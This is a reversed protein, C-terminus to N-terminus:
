KAELWNPGVGIDIDLPVELKIAGSMQKQVINKLEELEDDPADFVLEDHVQLVMKSKMSNIAKDIKIMALKIIDAATGQIPTNIATREAFQRIQFNKNNIDPLYRRRDLLTTVYGNERAFDLTKKMYTKIGPYRDFYTDIFEKSEALNLETQQSLGYASVGYVVAFNATKAARRQERNVNEIPIGYVEAATRAHIDEGNKFARILGKDDSYHALIRLEVQSYDAVMLSSNKDGPIFAKRIERGNETRIPINQLNPDSSSLRGTSTITQNFSTHIRGTEPNVLEPIADVYTSKLKNYQRYELIAKPLPHLASLEELVRVDTSFGTKKATKRRAPLKLEDFLIRSLQQTSNLNFEYGTMEFIGRAIRDIEAQMDNSLTKLFDLDIKIGNMEMRSLVSVLPLEIDYYLHHLNLEDIKHAFIGRLRYTYDADEGSYQAATQPDVTAFSKQNKGSGILDTIPTMRYNFHEFALNDLNHGRASSNIIYSALMSDFSVPSVTIGHRIMVQWDYKFNHAIKQVKNDTLLPKLIKVVESLKLNKEPQETHSVPIYYADGAKGALSIGVLNAQLANVSDTETDFAIEKKTSLEEVINKLESITKVLKYSAKSQKQEVPKKVSEGTIEKLLNFFELDIFLKKCKEIDPESRILDDMKIDLSVNQDITVLKLSLLAMDKNNLVKNRIGKANIEEAKDLINQLNGFQELLSLATKPGVGPIGPINDSSDGTLAMLETVNEPYVGIKKKVAERDMRVPPLSGKQPIYMHINENILQFMDKDSTVLHISLGEQAGQRALTAMIDDAEYGEMSIQKINLADIAQYIRPLQSVMDDPMKSRTAKYDDYLKHRFTPEKTDFIVALFDPKEKNLVKIISGVVGFAASTNEGKSNILPNRVFAYYARYALASGDFLFLKKLKSGSNENPM